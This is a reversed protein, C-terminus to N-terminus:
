YEGEKKKIFTVMLMPSIEKEIIFNKYIKPHKDKFEKADFSTRVSKDKFTIRMDKYNNTTGVELEEKLKLKILDIEKVIEKQQLTLERLKSLTYLIEMEKNM